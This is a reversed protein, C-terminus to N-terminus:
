EKTGYAGFQGAVAARYGRIFGEGKVPSPKEILEGM